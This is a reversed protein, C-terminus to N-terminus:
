LASIFGGDVRIMSGTIYAAQESAIFAAVAGFEEITGYRGTPLAQGADRAVEGIDRGSKEADIQWFSRIRDSLTAAPHLMNVTIGDKAVEMSLTKSWGALTARLANSLGIGPMPQIVGASGVTIIRGWGQTRMGPLVLDTLYIVSLVMAEFQSRWLDIGRNVVGGPPPGGTNNILIDIGDYEAAVKEFVAAITSHDSLDLPVTMADGGVQRIGDAVERLKDERRAALAVRVGERALAEAIGRGIGSSAGMILARRGELNLDM